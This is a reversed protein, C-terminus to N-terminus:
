EGTKPLPEIIKWVYFAAALVLIASVASLLQQAYIPQGLVLNGGKQVSSVVAGGVLSAAFGAVGGVAAKIGTATVFRELPLYDYVINTMASNLGAMSLDSVILYAVYLWVAGPRTFSNIVFSLAYVFLCGKLLQAWSRSDALHGCYPSVALRALSGGLLMWSVTTQSCGLEELLYTNFFSTSLYTAVMYLTYIILIHRLNKETRLLDAMGSLAGSGPTSREPGPEDKALCLTAIHLGSSLVIAAACLIFATKPQGNEMCADVVRGMGLQFLGGFVLSLMEKRATFGGREGASVSDMLWKYKAPQSLYLIVYAACVFAVLIVTKGTRTIPFLPILYLSAFLMENLLALRLMVKRISRKGCVTQASFPQVCCGLAAIATIVGTVADGVGIQKLLAALFTGKVVLSVMYEFLAECWIAWKLGSTKRSSQM